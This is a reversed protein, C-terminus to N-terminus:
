HKDGSCLECVTVDLKNSQKQRLEHQCHWGWTLNRQCGTAYVLCAGRGGDSVLYLYPGRFMKLPCHFLNQSGYFMHELRRGMYEKMRGGNTRRGFLCIWASAETSSRGRPYASPKPCGGLRRVTLSLIVYEISTWEGKSGGSTSSNEPTERAPNFM